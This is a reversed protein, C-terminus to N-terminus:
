NTAAHENSESSLEWHELNMEADSSSKEKVKGWHELCSNQKLQTVHWSALPHHSHLLQERLAKHWTM